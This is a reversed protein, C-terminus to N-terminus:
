ASVKDYIGTTDLGRDELEQVAIDAIEFFYEDERPDKSHKNALKSMQKAVFMRLQHENAKKCWITINVYTTNTVKSM